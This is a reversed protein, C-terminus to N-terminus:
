GAFLEFGAFDDRFLEGVLSKASGNDTAVIILHVLKEEHVRIPRPLGVGGKFSHLRCFSDVPCDKFLTLGNMNGVSMMDERATWLGFKGIMPRSRQEDSWDLKWIVVETIEGEAVATRVEKMGGVLLEGLAQ